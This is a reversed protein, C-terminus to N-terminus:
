EFNWTASGKDVAAQIKIKLLVTIKIKPLTSPFTVILRVIQKEKLGDRKTKSLHM